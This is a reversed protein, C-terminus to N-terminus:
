KYRFLPKEYIKMSSGPLFIARNLGVFLLIYTVKYRAIGTAVGFVKSQEVPRASVSM